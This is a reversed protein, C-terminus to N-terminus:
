KAEQLKELVLGHIKANGVVVSGTELFNEKGNFDSVVGGAERIMLAGAALDWIKLGEEWYADLRGAAVYALDLCVSGASRLARCEKIMTNATKYQEEISEGGCFFGTAVVAEALKSKKSVRLRRNNMQVGKGLSATFLEDRMPDYIIGHEVRKRNMFAMSISFHPIGHMFNMTGDIPDIIWLEEENGQLGSEEGLIGHQPYAKNLESIVEEEVLRDIETVFDNIGKEEVQIYEIKELARHMISGAKRAIRVATNIYPHM